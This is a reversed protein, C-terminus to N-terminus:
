IATLDGNHVTASNKASRDEVMENMASRQQQQQQRQKKRRHAVFALGIM